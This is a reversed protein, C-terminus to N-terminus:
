THHAGFPEPRLQILSRRALWCTDATQERALSIESDPATVASGVRHNEGSISPRGGVRWAQPVVVAATPTRGSTASRKLEPALLTPATSNRSQRGMDVRGRPRVRSVWADGTGRQAPARAPSGARRAPVPPRARRNGGAAHRPHPCGVDDRDAPRERSRRPRHRVGRVCPARGWRASVQGAM